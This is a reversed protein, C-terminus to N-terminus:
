RVTNAFQKVSVPNIPSQKTHNILRRERETRDRDRETERERDTKRDTQRQYKSM